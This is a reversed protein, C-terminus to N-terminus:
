TRVEGFVLSAMALALERSLHLRARLRRAQRQRLDPNSQLLDPWGTRDEERAGGQGAPNRKIPPARM